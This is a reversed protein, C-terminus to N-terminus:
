FVIVIHWMYNYGWPARYASGDITCGATAFADFQTMFALRMPCLHLIALATLATMPELNNQDFVFDLFSALYGPGPRSLFFDCHTGFTPVTVM